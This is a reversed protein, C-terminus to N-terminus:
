QGIGYKEALAEELLERDSKGKPFKALGTARRTIPGPTFKTTTRRQKIVADLFRAFMSSLSTGEDKALKKAQEVLEKEVSLTLKTLPM